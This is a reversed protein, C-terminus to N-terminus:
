AIDNTVLKIGLKFKSLSCEFSVSGEAINLTTAVRYNLAEKGFNASKLDCIPTFFVAGNIILMEAKEHKIM